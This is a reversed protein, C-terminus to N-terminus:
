DFLGEEADSRLDSKKQMEKKVREELQELSDLLKGLSAINASLDKASYIPKGYQEDRQNLDVTLFYLKLEDVARYAANLLSLSRTEQMEKYKELAALVLSDVEFTEIGMVAIDELATTIRDDEPMESYPSQWDQVLYIYACDAFARLSNTGKPDKKCKNRKTDFLAKFEKILLLEPKSLTLGDSYEFFKLM